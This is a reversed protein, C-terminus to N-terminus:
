RNALKRLLTRHRNIFANIIDGESYFTESTIGNEECLQCRSRVAKIVDISVVSNEGRYPISWVRQRVEIERTTFGQRQKKTRICIVDISNGKPNDLECNFRRLIRRLDRYTVQKEGRKVPISKADIWRTLAEVEEDPTPKSDKSTPKKNRDTQVLQHTAVDLIMKFFEDQTVTTFTFRNKDLHVLM